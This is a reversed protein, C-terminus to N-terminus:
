GNTKRGSFSFLIERGKEGRRKKEHEEEGMRGFGGDNKEGKHKAM